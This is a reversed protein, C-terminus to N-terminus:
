YKAKSTDFVSPINFENIDEGVASALGAAIDADTAKRTTQTNNVVDNYTQANPNNALLTDWPDASGDWSFAGDSFLNSNESANYGQFDGFNNSDSWWDDWGKQRAGAIGTSFDNWNIGSGNGFDFDGLFNQGGQDAASFAKNYVDMSNQDNSFGRDNYFNNKKEDTAYFNNFYSM